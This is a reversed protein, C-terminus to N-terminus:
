LYKEELHKRYDDTSISKGKLVGQLADTMPASEEKNYPPKNQLLTLFNNVIKSVSLRHKKAYVKVHEIVDDEIYLTLKSSM